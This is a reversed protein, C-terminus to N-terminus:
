VCMSVSVCVHLVFVCMCVNAACCVTQDSHWAKHDDDGTEVGTLKLVGGGTVSPDSRGSPM